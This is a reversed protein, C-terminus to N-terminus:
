GRSFLCKIYHLIKLHVFSLFDIGFWTGLVAYLKQKTGFPKITDVPYYNQNNINMISDYQAEFTHFVEDDTEIKNDKYPMQIERFNNQFLIQNLYDNMEGNAKSLRYDDKFIDITFAAIGVPEGTISNVYITPVNEYVCAEACGSSAICADIKALLKRPVPFIYDTIICKANNACEFINQIKRYISKKTGGGIFVVTFLTDKHEQIYNQISKASNIVYGKDLRGFCAIVKSEPIFDKILDCPLDEIVNSCAATFSRQLSQDLDIYKKFMERTIEHSTTFLAGQKLKMYLFSYEDPSIDFKEDVAFIVSKCMAKQALIEGWEGTTISSCDIIDDKSLEGTIELISNIVRNQEQKRFCWPSYRINEVIDDKFKRLETIFVNGHYSSIVFVKFGQNKYFLYKNRCYQQSGGMNIISDVLIVYKRM